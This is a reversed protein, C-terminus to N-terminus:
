ILFTKYISQTGFMVVAHSLNAIALGGIDHFGARADMLIFDLPKAASQLETLMEQITSQLEGKFYLEVLIKFSCEVVYGALYAANDFRENELLIEADRLHRGAANSFSEQMPKRKNLM